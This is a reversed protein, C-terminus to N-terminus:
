LQADKSDNGKYSDLHSNGAVKSSVRVVDLGLITGCKNILVNCNSNTGHKAIMLCLNDVASNSPACVLVKRCPLWVNYANQMYQILHQEM